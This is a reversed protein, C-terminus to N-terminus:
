RVWLSRVALSRSMRSMPRVIPWAWCRSQRPPTRRRGVLTLMDGRHVKTGPLIPIVTATAGRMIRRLFVGRAAPSVALDVLTKGDVEKSTVYVDVGEVPVNLLEADEVEQAAQGLVEVLVERPGAVAVVDGEKLVTDATADEIRGDRRIRLVFVRADPM